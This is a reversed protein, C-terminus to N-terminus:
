CPRRDETRVARDAMPKEAPLWDIDRRDAAVSLRMTMEAASESLRARRPWAGSRRLLAFRIGDSRHLSGGSREHRRAREYRPFKPGNRPDRGIRWWMAFLFGIISLMAGIALLDFANDKVMWMLRTLQSPETVMGKPFSAM